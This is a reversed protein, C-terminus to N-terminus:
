ANKDYLYRYALNIRGHIHEVRTTEISIYQEYDPDGLLRDRRNLMDIRNTNLVDNKIAQKTAISISDFLTPVFRKKPGEDIEDSLVRRFAYEGFINNLYQTVAGFEEEKNDLYGESSKAMKGMFLNLHKKLSIRGTEMRWVEPDQLAFYRLILEVDTMRKDPAETGYLDRWDTDEENISLLFKNYVGQYVCNRIEQATLSRGSTNIREFVQFLSTDDDNPHSQEFIIAHILSSRIKRQYESELETFAKGQWRPNIKQSRSLKFVKGDERWIGEKVYDYVTMIRQYGDVIIKKSDKTNALFVSPVPLGLLLSDIFRSAEVKDWVYHRQMEPKVLEDEEYMTIIERFSMDSGWSKIKYLDDDVYDDHTESDIEEIINDDQIM